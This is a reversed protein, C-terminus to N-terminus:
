IKGTTKWPGQQQPRFWWKQFTSVLRHVNNRVFCIKGYVKVLIRHSEAATKKWIFYYFLVERLHHSNPVFNSMKLASCFWTKRHFKSYRKRIDLLFFLWCHYIVCCSRLCSLNNINSCRNWICVGILFYLETPIRKCKSVPTFAPVINKTGPLAEHQEFRLKWNGTAGWGTRVGVHSIGIPNPDKWELLVPGRQNRSRVVIHGDLWSICFEKHENQSLISPTDVRVQYFYLALKYM